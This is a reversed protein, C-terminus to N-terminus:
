GMNDDHLICTSPPVVIEGACSVILTGSTHFWFCTFTMGSVPYSKKLPMEAEENNQDDDDMNQAVVSKVVSAASVPVATSGQQRAKKSPRFQIGSGFAPLPENLEQHQM